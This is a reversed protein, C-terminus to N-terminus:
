KFAKLEASLKRLGLLHEYAIGPVKTPRYVVTEGATRIRHAVPVQTISLKRARARAFFEWWFGQRLIGVNGDLVRMLAERKILLYPCSPDKLGVDFYMKYVQNFARSMALRIWHDQRPNRYGVVLDVDKQAMEKYLSAFDKPDCQGDSDIFGVLPATSAKFGDIVARSYGKREPGTILHIPVSKATEQIVAVTNDKSGDECVIFRIAYGQEVTAVQYFEQLTQGISEGENHAPLVLDINTNM